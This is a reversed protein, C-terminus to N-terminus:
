LQLRDMPKWSWALRRLRRTPAKETIIIVLPDNAARIALQTTYHLMFDSLVM